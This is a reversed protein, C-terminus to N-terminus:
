HCMCHGGRANTTGAKGPNLHHYRNTSFRSAPIPSFGTRNRALLEWFEDPSSVSGPLRCSMGIIAIPRHKLEIHAKAFGEKYGHVFADEYFAVPKPSSAGNTSRGTPSDTSDSPVTQHNSSNAHAPSNINIYQDSNTSPSSTGSSRSINPLSTSWGGEPLEGREMTPTLAYPVM